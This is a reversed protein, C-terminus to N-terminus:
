LLSPRDYMSYTHSSCTTAVFHSSHFKDMSNKILVHAFPRADISCMNEILKFTHTNTQTHRADLYGFRYGVKKECLYFLRHVRKRIITRSSENKRKKKTIKREMLKRSCSNQVRFFLLCWIHSYCLFCFPLLSKPNFSLFNSQAKFGFELM